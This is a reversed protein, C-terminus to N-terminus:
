PYGGACDAKKSEEWLQPLPKGTLVQFLSDNYTGNSLNAQLFPILDKSYVREVFQLFAAACWYGSTYHPCGAGCHPYSSENKFGAWYRIYDAIGEVLWSPQGPPYAQAVHAIEHIIAGLDDPHQIFWNVSLSIVSGSTSGPSQLDKKFVITVSSAPPRGHFRQYIRPYFQEALGAAKLAFEKMEPAERYDVRCFPTSVSNAPEFSM